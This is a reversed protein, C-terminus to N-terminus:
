TKFIPLFSFISKLQLLSTRLDNDIVSHLVIVLEDSDSGKLFSANKHVNVMIFEDADGLTYKIIKKPNNIGILEIIKNWVERLKRFLEKGDSEISMLTINNKLKHIEVFHNKIKIQLPAIASRYKDIYRVVYENESKKYRLINNVGIDYYNYADKYNYWKPILFHHDILLYSEDDVEFFSINKSAM